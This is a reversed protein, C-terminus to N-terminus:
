EPFTASARIFVSCDFIELTCHYIVAAERFVCRGSPDDALIIAPVEPSVSRRLSTM